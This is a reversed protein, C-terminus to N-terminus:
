LHYNDTPKNKEMACEIGLLKKRRSGSKPVIPDIFTRPFPGRTQMTNLFRHKIMIACLEKFLIKM